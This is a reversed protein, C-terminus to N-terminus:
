RVTASKQGPKPRGRHKDPSLSKTVDSHSRDPIEPCQEALPETLAPRDESNIESETDDFCPHSDFPLPFLM